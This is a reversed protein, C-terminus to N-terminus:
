KIDAETLPVYASIGRAAVKGIVRDIEFPSLGTGPRLCCIDAANIREGAALGRNVMLSRRFKLAAEWEPPSMDAQPTGLWLDVERIRAMMKKMEEPEISFFHEGPLACRRDLTVHKEIIRAGCAAAAVPVATGRTHDSYGTVRDFRDRLAGISALNADKQPLPYVSSCHLVAVDPCDPELVAIAAEIEAHNAMGTSLIAPRRTRAIAELLPRNTIDMSAVKMVDIALSHLAQVIDPSTPTVVFDLGAAHTHAILDAYADVPLELTRAFDIWKAFKREPDWKDADRMPELPSVIDEARFAQFKVADAGTAALADILERVTQPSGNHNNGIEAIVYTRGTTQWPIKM